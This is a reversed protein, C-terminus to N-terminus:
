DINRIITLRGVVVVLVVGPGGLPRALSSQCSDIFRPRHRQPAVFRSRARRLNITRSHKRSSAQERVPKFPSKGGGIVQLMEESLSEAALALTSYTACLGRYSTAFISSVGARRTGSGIGQGSIGSTRGTSQTTSHGTATSLM